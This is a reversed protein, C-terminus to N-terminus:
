CCYCCQMVCLFTYNILASNISLGACQDATKGKGDSGNGRGGEGYGDHILDIVNADLASDSRQSKRRSRAGYVIRAIPTFGEKDLYHNAALNIFLQCSRSGPGSSAFSLTGRSNSHKPYQGTFLGTRNPLPNGPGQEPEQPLLPEDPLPRRVWRRTEGPDHSSVGFQAM